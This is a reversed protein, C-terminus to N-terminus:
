HHSQTNKETERLFSLSVHQEGASQRVNVVHWVQAVDDATHEAGVHEGPLVAKQNMM